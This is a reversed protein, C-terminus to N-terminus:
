PLIYIFWKYYAQLVLFYPFSVNIQDHPNGGEDTKLEFIAVCVGGLLIKLDIGTGVEPSKLVEVSVTTSTQEELWDELLTKLKNQLNEELLIQLAFEPYQFPGIHM